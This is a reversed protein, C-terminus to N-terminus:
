KQCPVACASAPSTTASPSECPEDCPQECPKDCDKNCVEDCPIERQCVIEGADDYCTVLCTDRETCEVTVRCDESECAPPRDAPTAEPRLGFWGAGAGALLVPILLLKM